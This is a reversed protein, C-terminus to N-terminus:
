WEYALDEETKQKFSYCHGGDYSILNHSKMIYSVLEMQKEKGFHFEGVIYEIFSLDKDLLFEYEAGEIDIKLIKIKQYKSKIEEITISEVEDLKNEKKWGDGLSTAVNGSNGFYDISGNMEYAYVPIKINQQKSCARKEVSYKINLPELNNKLHEINDTLVDFCVYLDFRNQNNVEFSGVNSGCDIAIGGRCEHPIFYRSESRIFKLWESPNNIKM